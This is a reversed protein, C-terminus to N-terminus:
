YLRKAGDAKVAPQAAGVKSGSGDELEWLTVVMGVELFDRLLQENEEEEDDFRIALAIGSVGPAFDIFEVERVPVGSTIADGHIPWAIIMGAKATGDVMEGCVFVGPRGQFKLIGSVRFHCAITDVM